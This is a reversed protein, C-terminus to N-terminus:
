EANMIEYIVESPTLDMQVRHRVIQGCACTANATLTIVDTTTGGFTSFNYQEGGEENVDFVEVIPCRPVTSWNGMIHERNSGPVTVGFSGMTDTPAARGAILKGAARVLGLHWDGSVEEDTIALVNGTYDKLYATM